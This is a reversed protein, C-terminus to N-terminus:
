EIPSKRIYWLYKRLLNQICCHICFCHSKGNQQQPNPAVVILSKDYTTPYRSVKYVAPLSDSSSDRVRINTSPAYVKVAAIEIPSMDRFVANKLDDM